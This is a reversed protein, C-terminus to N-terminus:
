GWVAWGVAGSCALFVVATLLATVISVRRQTRADRREALYFSARDEGSWALREEHRGLTWNRMTM